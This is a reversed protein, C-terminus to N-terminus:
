LGLIPSSSFRISGRSPCISLAPFKQSRSVGRWRRRRTLDAGSAKAHQQPSWLPPVRMVAHQQPLTECKLVSSKEFALTCWTPSSRVGIVTAHVHLLGAGGFIARYRLTLNLFHKSAPRIKYITLLFPWKVLFISVHTVRFQLLNTKSFFRAKKPM